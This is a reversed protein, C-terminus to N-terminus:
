MVFIWCVLFAFIHIVECKIRMKLSNNCQSTKKYRYKTIFIVNVLAM